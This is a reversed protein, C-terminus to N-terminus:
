NWFHFLLLVQASGGHLGYAYGADLSANLVRSLIEPRWGVFVGANTDSLRKFNFGMNVGAIISHWDLFSMGLTLNTQVPTVMLQGGFVGSLRWVTSTHAEIHAVDTFFQAKVKILSDSPNCLNTRCYVADNQAVAYVDINNAKAISCLDNKAILVPKPVNTTQTIYVYQKVTRNVVHPVYIVSGKAKQEIAKKLQQQLYATQKLLATDKRDRIGKYFVFLIVAIALVLIIYVWNKLGAAINRFTQANM